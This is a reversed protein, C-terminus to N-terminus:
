GIGKNIKLLMREFEDMDVPKSYYYGQAVDCNVSKLFDVQDKTEVGEAVVLLGLQKSMTVSNEIIIRGRKTSMIEDVFYRDIKIVDVPAERLMNLSSYGSGFDDMEIVFGEAKLANMIEYLKEVDETFLTETIELELNRNEIGFKKTLGLLTNILDTNGIHYRSINVSIPVSIDNEKLRSLYEAATEWMYEDLKKIFGNSEFYPLFEGPLRLGGTPHVWRVLAEAGCIKETKLDIKPQLYMVFEHNELATQMESEMQSLKRQMLRIRDDYIAFNTLMNGKIDKKALRARDCMLRIAVDRNTIKYIGFSLTSGCLKAEEFDFLSDVKKIYDIIDEEKEYSILISFMDAEYRGAIGDEAISNRIADGMAELCRNGTEVGFRDNIIRFHEIDMAVIAFLTDSKLHIRESVNRYFAEANYLKTMSDYDARFELEAKVEMESNVDQLVGTVRTLQNNLGKLTQVTITFWRAVDHKNLIKVTIKHTNPETKVKEIFREYKKKDEEVTRLSELLSWENDKMEPTLVFM